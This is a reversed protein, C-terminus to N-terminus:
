FLFHQIRLQDEEIDFIENIKEEPIGIKQSLRSMGSSKIIKNSLKREDIKKIFEEIKQIREEHNKLISRIDSLNKESM